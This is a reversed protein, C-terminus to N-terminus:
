GRVRVGAESAIWLREAIPERELLQSMRTVIELIHRRSQHSVRLVIMGPHSSPPFERIDAFDLDLTLLVRDEVRCHQALIADGRGRLGESHVTHVDHGEGALLVAVDDHLNEDIKLRM